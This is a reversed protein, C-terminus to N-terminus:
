INDKVPSCMVSSSNISHEVVSKPRLSCFSSPSLSTSPELCSVPQTYFFECVFYLKLIVSSSRSRNKQKHTDGPPSETYESWHTIGSSIDISVNINWMRPKGDEASCLPLDDCGSHCFCSDRPRPYNSITCSNNVTICLYMKKASQTYQLVFATINKNILFFIVALSSSTVIVDSWKQKM